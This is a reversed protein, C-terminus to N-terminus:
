ALNCAQLLKDRVLMSEEGFMLDFIGDEANMIITAIRNQDLGMREAVPFANIKFNDPNCGIHSGLFCLPSVGETTRIYKYGDRDSNLVWKAKHSHSAFGVIFEHLTM